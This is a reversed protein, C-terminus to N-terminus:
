KGIKEEIIHLMEVPTIDAKVIFNEAGLSLGKEVVSDQGLNSLIIVPIHKKTPEAKVNELLDLGNMRPLMIDLLVLDYDQAFIKERGEMGDVAEDIRYGAMELQKKYLERIFLDDEVILIHKPVKAAEVHLEQKLKEIPLPATPGGPAGANTQTDAAAIIKKGCKPCFTFEMGEPVQYGCGTCFM